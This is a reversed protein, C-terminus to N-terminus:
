PNTKFLNSLIRIKPPNAILFNARPFARDTFPLRHNTPAPILISRAEIKAAPPAPIGFVRVLGLLGLAAVRAPSTPDPGRLIVKARNPAPPPRLVASLPSFVSLRTSGTRRDGLDPTAIGM